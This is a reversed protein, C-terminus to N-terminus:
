IAPRIGTGYGTLEVYGRGVRRRDPDTVTVSGEWYFLNPVLRSINEQAAADPTVELVLGEEALEIQWGAPYHAGTLSSTWRGRPTVRIADGEIHRTRIGERLTARAFNVAGTADRLLYVMVDRDGDLRLAFWDWGVQEEALQNSGFEKDMWSEGRVVLPRGDWTLTGETAIRTLSYYLSATGAQESKPSYGNPGQFTVPATPTLRLDLGVGLRRDVTSVQFAGDRWALTWRAAEGAPGRSWAVLSDGVPPFGGLVGNARWLVEAFRHEGSQLDTIALHGMVLDHANWTSALELSDAALGVRFFTFQYGFEQGEGTGLQGTFYWWETKYGPHSWHDRPFQWAYEPEAMRWDPAQGALPAALGTLLAVLYRIASV